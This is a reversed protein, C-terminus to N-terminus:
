ETAPHFDEAFYEERADDFRRALDKRDVGPEFLVCRRTGGVHALMRGHWYDPVRLTALAQEGNDTFSAGLDLVVTNGLVRRLSEALPALEAATVQRRWSLTSRPPSANPEFGLQRLQDRPGPVDNDEVPLLIVLANEDPRVEAIALHARVDHYTFCQPAAPAPGGAAVSSSSRPGSMSISNTM